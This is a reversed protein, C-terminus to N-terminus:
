KHKKAAQEQKSNAKSNARTQRLLFRSDRRRSSCSRPREVELPVIVLYHVDLEDWLDGPQSGLLISFMNGLMKGLINDLIKCALSEHWTVQTQTTESSELVSAEKDNINEHLGWSISSSASAGAPPDSVWHFTTLDSAFQLWFGLTLFYFVGAYGLM